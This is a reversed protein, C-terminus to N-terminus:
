IMFVEQKLTKQWSNVILSRNILLIDASSILSGQLAGPSGILGAKISFLDKVIDFNLYATTLDLKFKDASIMIGWDVKPSLKGYPMVRLRSFAFGFPSTSNGDADPELFVYSFNMQSFGKIGITPQFKPEETKPKTTTDTPTQAVIGSFFLFFSVSTVLLKRIM